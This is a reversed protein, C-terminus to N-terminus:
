SVLIPTIFTEVASALVLILIAAIILDSADLMVKDMAERNFHRRVLAASLLGGALGGVFYGAVEPIGHTFYRVISMGGASAYAVLMGSGGVAEVGRQAYSGLATGIVSANWTLIFIGGAGYVFAFLICFLLVKLNNILIVTFLGPSVARATVSSSLTAITKAQVSFLEPVGMYWLAFGVSMGVFCLIFGFVARAHQKLAARESQLTLGLMEQELIIQIFLPMLAFATLFVLVLAAYERFVWSALGIGINACAFGWILMLWPKRMANAVSLLSEVVM